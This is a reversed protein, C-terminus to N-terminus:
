KCRQGEGRGSSEGRIDACVRKEEQLLVHTLHTDPQPDPAFLGSLTMFPARLEIMHYWRSQLALRLEVSLLALRKLMSSWRCRNKNGQLGAPQM